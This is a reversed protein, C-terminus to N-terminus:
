EGLKIRPDLKAYVLDAVLNALVVAISVVLLLGGMLTYDRNTTAQGLFYGMGPYQFTTEILVSGSLMGGFTLALSTVLPLLANRTVYRNRIYSPLVGRAKAAVTFDEGAVGVASGKMQLAWAGLHTLIFTFIPLAAHYLASMLFAGNLGPTVYVSYAGSTPFWSVGYAFIVLLIIGIIFDPISTTIVSYVSIMPELISSRKWAMQTGLFIGVFFSFFLSVTSVFLTWPLAHAIVQNVTTAPDMMPRGLSGHILGDFYQLLQNIIPEDPNYNYMRSIIAYAQHLNQGTSQAQQIALQQIASGPTLRLLVFTIVAVLWITVLALALRRVVYMLSM